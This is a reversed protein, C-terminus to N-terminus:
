LLNPSGSSGLLASSFCSTLSWLPDFCIFIGVGCNGIASGHCFRSTCSPLYFRRQTFPVNQRACINGFGLCRVLRSSYRYWTSCSCPPSALCAAGHRHLLDM